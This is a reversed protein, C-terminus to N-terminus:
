DAWKKEKIEYNRSLEEFYANYTVRVIVYAEYCVEGTFANIIVVDCHQENAIHKAFAIADALNEFGAIDKKKATITYEFVNMKM